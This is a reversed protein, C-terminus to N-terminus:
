KGHKTSLCGQGDFVFILIFPLRFFRSCRSFLAVLEPNQMTGHLNCACYMWGSCE